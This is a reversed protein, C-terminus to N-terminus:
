DVIKINFVHVKDLSGKLRKVFGMDIFNHSSGLDILITMPCNKIYCFVKMTPITLPTLTDFLACASIEPEENEVDKTDCFESDQVDILLLKKREYTHGKVFREKCHFYLGNKRCYYVKDITLRRINHPQPHNESVVNTNLNQLPSLFISQLYTPKSKVKLDTLKANLRILLLQLKLFM